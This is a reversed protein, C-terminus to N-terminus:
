TSSSPPWTARAKRSMTQPMRAFRPSLWSDTRSPHRRRTPNQSRPSAGKFGACFCCACPASAASARAGNGYDAQAILYDIYTQAAGNVSSSYGTLYPNYSVKNNAVYDSWFGTGMTPLQRNLDDAAATLAATPDAAAADTMATTAVVGEDALSGLLMEASAITEASLCSTDKDPNGCPPINIIATSGYCITTLM